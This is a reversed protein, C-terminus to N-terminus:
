SSRSRERWCARRRRSRGRSLALVLRRADGEDRLGVRRPKRAAPKRLAATRRRVAAGRDDGHRQGRDPGSPRFFDPLNSMTLAGGVSRAGTSADSLQAGIRLRQASRRVSGNLVYRVGLARGIERVDLAKGRFTFSSNRASVFLWRLRSISAHHHRRRSWRRLAAARRRPELERVALRSHVPRGGGARGCRAAGAARRSRRVSLRLAADDRDMRRRRAGLRSTQAAFRDPGVSQKGRRRPGALGGGDSRVQFPEGGAEQPPGDVIRLGRYSIPVPRAM